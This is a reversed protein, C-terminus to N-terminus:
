SSLRGSPAAFRLLLFLRCPGTVLPSVLIPCCVNPRRPCGANRVAITLVAVFAAVALPPALFVVVRVLAVVFLLGALVMVAVLGDFAAVLVIVVFLVVVEVFAEAGLNLVVVLGAVGVVVAM